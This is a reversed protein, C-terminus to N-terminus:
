LFLSKDVIKEAFLGKKVDFIYDFGNFSITLKDKNLKRGEKELNLIYEFKGLEKVYVVSGEFEPQYKYLLELEKRVVDRTEKQAFVNFRELYLNRATIVDKMVWLETYLSLPLVSRATEKPLNEYLFANYLDFVTNQFIELIETPIGKPFYYEFKVRDNSTFRRSVEVFSCGRHRMYQRAVFIPIKLKFVCINENYLVDNSIYNLRMHLKNINRLSHAINPMDGCRIFELVSFHGKSIIKNAIREKDKKTLEEPQKGYSICAVSSITEQRAEKNYNSKSFDWLEVFGINDDYCYDKSLRKIYQLSM